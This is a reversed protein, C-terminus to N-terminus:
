TTEVLRAIEDSLQKNLEELQAVQAQLQGIQTEIQRLDKIPVVDMADLLSGTGLTLYTDVAAVILTSSVQELLFSLISLSLGTRTKVICVTM